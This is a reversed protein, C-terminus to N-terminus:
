EYCFFLFLIFEIYLILDSDTVDQFNAWHSGFQISNHIWLKYDTARYPLQFNSSSHVNVYSLSNQNVEIKLSNCRQKFKACCPLWIHKQFLNRATIWYIQSIISINSINSINYINSIVYINSINFIDKKTNWKIYIDKYKLMPVKSEFISELISSIIFHM